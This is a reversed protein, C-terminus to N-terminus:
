DKLNELIEADSAYLWDTESKIGCSSNLWRHASVTIPINAFM